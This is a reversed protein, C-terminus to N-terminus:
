RLFIFSMGSKIDSVKHNTM